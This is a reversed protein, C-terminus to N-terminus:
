LIYKYTKSEIEMFLEFIFDLKVYKFGFSYYLSFIEVENERMRERMEEKKRGNERM